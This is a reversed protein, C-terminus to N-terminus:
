VYIEGPTTSANTTSSCSNETPTANQSPAHDGQTTPEPSEQYEPPPNHRMWPILHDELFEKQFQVWAPPTIQQRRREIIIPLPLLKALDDLVGHTFYGAPNLDYLMLAKLQRRLGWSIKFERGYWILIEAVQDYSYCDLIDAMASTFHHSDMSLTTRCM